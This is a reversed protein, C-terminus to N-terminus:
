LQKVVGVLMMLWLATYSLPIYIDLALRTKHFNHKLNTGQELEALNKNANQRASGKNHVYTYEDLAAQGPMRFEGNINFHEGLEHKYYDVILGRARVINFWVIQQILAILIVFLTTKPNSGSYFMAGVALMFSQSSHMISRYSQLLSENISWKEINNM